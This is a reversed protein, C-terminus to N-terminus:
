PLDFVQFGSCIEEVGEIIDFPKSVLSVPQFTLASSCLGSTEPLNSEEDFNNNM